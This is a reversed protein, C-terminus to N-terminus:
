AKVKSEIEIVKNKYYDILSPNEKFYEILKELGQFKQENSEGKNIYFWAGGRQILDYSLALIIISKFNDNFGGKVNANNGDAYYFDFEGTCMRKYTKNKVIKYKTVQGVVEKNDGKGETIWDGKRLRILISQFFGLARGGPEYTPDGYSGIKERVQNIAILTCPMQGNRTFSNNISQFKALYEGILKQKVGMQVSEGTESELVKTPESVAISDWVILKVGKEQLSQMLQTVEELSSPNCYILSDTDIELQRLYKSDTTNEFDMLACLLGMEQANRIIHLAQTTKTSSYEGSLQIVRGVPIGGGLDTDLQVSGTPIRQIGKTDYEALNNATTVINDDKFEKKIADIVSLVEKNTTGTKKKTITKNKKM